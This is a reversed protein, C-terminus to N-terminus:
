VNLQKWVDEHKLYKGGSRMREDVIRALAIDEHMEIWDEVIELTKTALPVRDRKALAELANETKKPLSLNLRTKLTPM